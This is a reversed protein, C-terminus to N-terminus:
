IEEFSPSWISRELTRAAGSLRAYSDHLDHWGSPWRGDHTEMYEILLTAADWKAYADASNVFSMRYAIAVAAFLLLSLASLITFLRRKM